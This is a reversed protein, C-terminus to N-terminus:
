DEIWLVSNDTGYENEEYLKNAPDLIWRDDIIFKYTYKGQNLFLPLIWKDIQRNMRYGDRKWGNFSGTVMVNKAEPFGKLEFIHNAKLAILSNTYNGTGSAFPNAPDPMWKGDTIFKYEYNGPAVVYSLQWGAATKNMLLETENWNNFSGTLVVKEADTFGELKFIYPEGIELFSNENGNADKRLSPNAPDPMWKGDVLFKYSYTGEKLYVPLSWGESNRQMEVGKPRWNYFNGTVVVKKAKLYGMLNFVHNTCLLVSNRNGEWDRETKRNVPDTIWRGDVIYKYTHKGPQLPINIAWGGSVKNMSTQNTSWKNFSGALFVRGAKEFGPLFFSARGSRYVFANSIIFDNVGWVEQNESVSGGFNMWQDIVLLVDNEKMGEQALIQVPKSLEVLPHKGKKVVWIEGEFDITTKGAFVQSVLASDLDFLNCLEKREKENWKLNIRFILQGDDIRCINDPDFQANVHLAFCVTLFFLFYGAIKKM